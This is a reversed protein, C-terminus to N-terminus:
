DLQRSLEKAHGVGPAPARTKSEITGSERLHQHSAPADIHWAIGVLLRGPVANCSDVPLVQVSSIKQKEATGGIVDRMGAHENAVTLKDMVCGKAMGSDLDAPQIILGPGM